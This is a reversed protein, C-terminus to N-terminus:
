FFPIKLYIKTETVPVQFFHFFIQPPFKVKEFIILNFLGNLIHKYISINTVIDPTEVTYYWMSGGPPPLCDVLILYWEYLQTGPM